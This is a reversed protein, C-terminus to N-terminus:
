PATTVPTLGQPPCVAEVEINEQQTGVCDETYSAVTQYLTTIDGLNVQTDNFATQTGGDFQCYSELDALPPNQLKSSQLNWQAQTFAYVNVNFALSGSTSACLNIFTADAYCPYAGGAIFVPAAGGEAFSSVIVAYEYIQNPGTGCGYGSVLEDARVVIGTTPTIGTSNGTGCAYVCVVFAVVPALWALWSFRRLSSFLSRVPPPVM